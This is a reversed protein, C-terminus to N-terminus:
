WRNGLRGFRRGIGKVADVPGQQAQQRQVLPMPAVQGARLPWEAEWQILEKFLAGPGSVEVESQSIVVAPGPKVSVDLRWTREGTSEITSSVSAHYYGYPRLAKRASVESEQRLNELRRRTLRGIGTLRFPEVAAEVNSLVPEEVGLVRIELEDAFAPGPSFALWLLAIQLFILPSKSM